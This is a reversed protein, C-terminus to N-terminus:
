APWRRRSCAPSRPWRDTRAPDRRQRARDASRVLPLVISRSRLVDDPLRIATFGRPAYAHVRRTRWTKGDSEKLTVYTGRRNGSLLINRVNIDCRKPDALVEADDVVLTGGLAAHDRIAAFSSGASVVEGLYATLAWTTGWKTMGSGKDGNPWPYPMVEFADEFWTMLSLVASLECM